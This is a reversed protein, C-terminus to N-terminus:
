RPRLEAVVGRRNANSFPRRFVGAARNMICSGPGADGGTGAGGAGGAVTSDRVGGGEEGPGDGDGVADGGDGNRASKMPPPLPRKPRPLLRKTRTSRPTTLRRPRLMRWNPRVLWSLLALRASPM